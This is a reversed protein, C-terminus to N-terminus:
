RSIVVPAQRRTAGITVEVFYIGPRYNAGLLLPVSTPVQAHQEVLQGLANLVRVQMTPRRPATLRVRFAGAAPNPYVQLQDDVSGRGWVSTLVAATMVGSRRSENHFRDLATVAYHYGAAWGGPSVTDRYRTVDDNVIAILQAPDSTDVAATSSRYVAFQRVRQLEDSTPAPAQWTVTISDGELFASGAVPAEPAIMDRWPMRPQLAPRRFLDNKLSDRFGLANAVLHQTRFFLSGQVNPYLDSRNMRVQGPVQGPAAWNAGQAPDNVKYAAIGIYIHRGSANNNWWPVLVDYDSGPQGRYWYLQPAVYDVWGQQLWKKSDAYSSSYHQLAGASTNSGVSPDTSSRYIGSPSVGFKVWPKITRVSDYVAQIFLNINDRRWDARGTTTNPFGRPDATYADDDNITGSPYFYDDFHIGDVDYRRLIDTIVSIIHARAAPIGPNIIQVTGVTLMWSPQTRSIHGASYLTNNGANATNAVARFPNIWAHFEFGRQRSQELAFQLPDWLPNPAVGQAGTLDYSWPELSSQYFADSQGRVQFYVTNIGTARHHDLQAQLASRQQAPTQSRVPWDLGAYTTIWAGRVEIM